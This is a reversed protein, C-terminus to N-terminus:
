QLYWHLVIDSDARRQWWSTERWTSATRKGSREEALLLSQIMGLRHRDYAGLSDKKILTECAACLTCGVCKWSTWLYSVLSTTKSLERMKLELEYRFPLKTASLARLVWARSEHFAQEITAVCEQGEPRATYANRQQGEVDQATRSLNANNVHQPKM